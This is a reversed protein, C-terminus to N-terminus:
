FNARKDRVKAVIKFLFMGVFMAAVFILNSRQWSVISLLAPGPCYGSLGWGVGFLASGLILSVTIPGRKPISWFQALFPTKRKHFLFYFSGNILIAMAMVLMLSVKWEGVLNLFAIINQPQTMGSIGLGAAFILGCVYAVLNEKM